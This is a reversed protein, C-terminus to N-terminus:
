TIVRRPASRKPTPQSAAIDAVNGPTLGDPARVHCAGDPAAASDESGSIGCVHRCRDVAGPTTRANFKPSTAWALMSAALRVRRGPAGHTGPTPERRFTGRAPWGHGRRSVVVRDGAPFGDSRKSAVAPAPRPPTYVTGNASSPDTCNPVSPSNQTWDHWAMPVRAYGGAPEGAVRRLSM